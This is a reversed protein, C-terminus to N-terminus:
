KREISVVSHDVLVTDNTNLRGYDKGNVSLQENRIWIDADRCPMYHYGDSTKQPEPARTRYCDTVAIAHTGVHAEVRGLLLNNSKSCGAFLFIIALWIRMGPIM